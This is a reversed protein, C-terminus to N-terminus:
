LPSPPNGPTHEVPTNYNEPLKSEQLFTNPYDYYAHLRVHHAKWRIKDEDVINDVQRKKRCAFLAVSALSEVSMVAACSAPNDKGPVCCRFMQHTDNDYEIHFVIVRKFM